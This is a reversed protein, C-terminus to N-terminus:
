GGRELAMAMRHAQAVQRWPYSSDPLVIEENLAEVQGLDRLLLFGQAAHQRPIPSQWLVRAREVQPVAEAYRGLLLDLMARASAVRLAVYPIRAREDFNRLWILSQEAGVMDGAEICDLLLLLNGWVAVIPDATQASIVVLQRADVLRDSLTDPSQGSSYRAWLAYAILTPDGLRRAASVAQEACMRSRQLNETSRYWLDAALRALVRVRLPSDAPPLAELAEVLLASQQQGGFAAVINVGAYGIAAQALQEADGSERAIRAARLFSERAEPADGSGPGSRNQADGLKLLLQCTEPPDAKGSRDRAEVARRYHGVAQEWALQNMAADGAKGAYDVVQEFGGTPAARSFHWALEAWPPLTGPLTSDELAAGIALHLRIREPGSLEEYLTERILAHSFRYANIGTDEVIVHARLAEDLLGLLEEDDRVSIQQMLALSFDRGIVAALALAERCTATLRNLRLAIVERVSNPLWPHRALTVEPNDLTGEDALLRVIEGVFFPNGDTERDIASVLRESPPCDITAEILRGIASLQMGRVAIRLCGPERALATLPVALPHARDVEIDRYTAALLVCSGRVEQSLFRLLLISPLDAWQLDDLIVLLPTQEAANRLLRGIADFLQFRHQEPALPASPIEHRDRADDAGRLNLLMQALAADDGSQEIKRRFEPNHLVDRLAQIWPWYAPAGEWEYCRGWLVRVGRESSEVALQEALRTKGIGPEGALLIMRGAGALMEDLAHQLLGRERERGVFPVSAAPVSIANDSATSGDM